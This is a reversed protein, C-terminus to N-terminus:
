YLDKYLFRKIKRSSTKEFEEGRIVLDSVKKYPALGRNVETVRDRLYAEVAGGDGSRPGLIGKLAEADPVIVAVVEEGGDKAKRGVVLVELVGPTGDFKAEIEEPFVNKGGSTVILSKSRGTIHLYGRSDILGLDGTRLYGDETMIEKTAAENRFYGKMLSPSRVEIEGVGSGEEAGAIRLSTYKVPLGATRNDKYKMTNTTILPGNESMGYGQVIYFGLGDFFNATQPSLPGGGSVLLRLSSLGAKRRLPRFLARGVARLRLANSAASVKAFAGLLLRAPAPLAKITSSIGQRLKDFLLPVGILITGGSERVDAILVKAVIKDVICYCAGVTLPSLFSCTTAYTHHLPLVGMFVDREDILLSLIAANINAIIGRHSLMVGKANGTTGSTFIISATADGPIEAAAPVAAEGEFSLLEGWASPAARGIAAVDDLCVCLAPLNASGPAAAELARFTAAKTGSLILARPQALSLITAAEEAGLLADMPVFTAGMTVVAYWAVCWERRNESWIAVRDGPGVGRAALWARARLVMGRLELYSTPELGGSGGRQLIAVREPYRSTVDDFLYSFNEYTYEPVNAYYNKLM